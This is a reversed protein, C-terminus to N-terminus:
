TFPPGVAWGTLAYRVGRSVPTVRHPLYSPFAVGCGRDAPADVHDPPEFFQLQGGAYDDPLSLQVTVGLKRNRAREGALDCHWAHFDDIEYRQVKLPSELRELAFGYTAQKAFLGALREFIWETAPGLPVLKWSARKDGQSTPNDDADTTLAATWPGDMEILRACEDASFLERRYVASFM